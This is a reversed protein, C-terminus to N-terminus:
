RVVVKTTYVKGNQNVKLMYIGSNLNSVNVQATGTITESYVQQGVINFLQINAKEDNGLNVTFNNTAPNPYVTMQNNEMEPVNVVGCDNCTVHLAIWPKPNGQWMIDPQYSNYFYESPVFNDANTFLGQQYDALIEPTGWDDYGDRPDDYLATRFTSLDTGIISNPTRACGPIFTVIVTVQSASLNQLGAPTPLTLYYFDEGTDDDATLEIKDVIINSSFLTNSLHDTDDLACTYDPTFTTNNFPIVPMIFAPGSSTSLLSIDTTDFGIVYSIALTDVVNAAVNTGRNYLWILRLSDISYSNLHNMSPVNQPAGTYDYMDTWCNHSWDFIQGICGFQVPSNGSSYPYMGLTDCQIPPAFGSGEEGYWALADEILNFWYTNVDRQPNTQTPTGKINITTGDKKVVMKTTSVQAFSFSVILLAALLAYLKKM